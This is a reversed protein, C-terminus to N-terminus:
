ETVRRWRLAQDHFHGLALAGDAYDLGFLRPVLRLDGVSPPRAQGSSRRKSRGAATAISLISTLV